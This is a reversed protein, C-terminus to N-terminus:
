GRGKCGILVSLPTDRRRSTWDDHASEPWAAARTDMRTCQQLGPVCRFHRSFLRSPSAFVASVLYLLTREKSLTSFKQSRFLIAATNALCKLPLSNTIKQQKLREKHALLLMSIRVTMPPPSRCVKHLLKRTYGYHVNENKSFFCFRSKELTM